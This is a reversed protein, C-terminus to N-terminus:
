GEVGLWLPGDSMGRSERLVGTSKMTLLCSIPRFSEGLGWARLRLAVM